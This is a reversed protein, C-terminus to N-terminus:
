SAGGFLQASWIRAVLITSFAAFGACAAVAVARAGVARRVISEALSVLALLWALALGAAGLMAASRPDEVSVAYLALTPALGALVLSGRATARATADALDSWAIPADALSLVIGLAPVGLVAVAIWALAVGAGGGVIARGEGAAGFAGGYSASLALCLGAHRLRAALTSGRADVSPDLLRAAWNETAVVSSDELSPPLPVAAVVAPNAQM